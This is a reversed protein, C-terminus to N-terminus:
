GRRTARTTSGSPARSSCTGTTRSSRFGAPSWSVAVRAPEGLVSLRVIGPFTTVKHSDNAGPSSDLSLASNLKSAFGRAEQIERGRTSPRRSGSVPDNYSSNVGLSFIRGMMFQVLSRSPSAAVPSRARHAPGFSVIPGGVRCRASSSEQTHVSWSRPRGGVPRPSRSGFPVPGRRFVDSLDRRRQNVALQYHDGARRFSWESRRELMRESENAPYSM